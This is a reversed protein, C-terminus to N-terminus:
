QYRAHAMRDDVVFGLQSQVIFYVPLARVGLIFRASSARLPIVGFLRAGRWVTMPVDASTDDHHAVHRRLEAAASAM